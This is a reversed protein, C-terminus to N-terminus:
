LLQSRGSSRVLSVVERVLQSSGKRCVLAVGDRIVVILDSVGALAVPIDSMVFNGAAEVSAIEGQSRGVRAV